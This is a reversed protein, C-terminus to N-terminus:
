WWFRRSWWVYTHKRCIMVLNLSSEKEYWEWRRGQVPSVSQDSLTPPILPLCLRPCVKVVVKIGRSFSVFYSKIYKQLIRINKSLLTYGINDKCKLFATLLQISSLHQPIIVSLSLAGNGVWKGLSPYEGTEQKNEQILWNNLWLRCIHLVPFIYMSVLITVCLFTELCRGLQREVSLLVGWISM